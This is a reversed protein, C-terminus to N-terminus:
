PQKRPLPTALLQRIAEPYPMAPIVQFGSSTIDSNEHVTKVMLARVTVRQVFHSFIWRPAPAAAIGTQDLIVHGGPYIHALMGFGFNVGQFIDADLRVMRHSQADIWLRGRLGTLAEATMTPPHWHPDPTFDLVVQPNTSANSQAQGPVFSFTMADPMLKVLDVALKKGQVDARVHKAFAAPSDIMAQLREHEAADEEPTLPRGEKFILRAVTGDKSELVDRYQDGHGNVVHAHYRLYIGNYDILELEHLAAQKAWEHAAQPSTDQQTPQATAPLSCCCALLLVIAAPTGRRTESSARKTQIVRNGVM